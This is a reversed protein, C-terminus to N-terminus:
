PCVGECFDFACIWVPNESQMLHYAGAEKARSVQLQVLAENEIPYESLIECLLAITELSIAHIVVRMHPNKKYLASLIARMNGGSGGILAHTFVPLQEMGEPATAAVIEINDLAFRKKNEAILELAEEKHEIAFVQVNESLEALEVAVSGSGSGIDAVVAGEYLGLKCISVERIEEKTMPVRARLFETDKRGHTLRPTDPAPNKICCIYLGEERLDMCEMPSLMKIQQGEYSLQFGVIVTCADLGADTLERGLRHVDAVGSLLLFTKANRRIKRALCTLKKGHMSFIAADQYTEGILAAFYSVSSIGPLVRLECRLAGEQQQQKLAQMLNAAGSYFGSDGSFLIVVQCPEMFTEEQLRKLYPVIDEAMYIPEKKLKPHYAEILRPAGLLVDAGEIAAAAERTLCDCSGMGCGVLTVELKSNAHLSIGCLKEICRCVEPFRLGEKEEKAGIVFVPIGKKKAAMLKEEFGGARGSQKTVICEIRLQTLLASNLEESFPGQMAILQKGTLGQRMCEEIIEVTPLVRVYLREKLGETQSYVSLGKSGNTLLINGPIDQLARACEENNSFYTVNKEGSEEGCERHLRLYPVKLGQLAAKINDTVEYAYPHTADIVAMPEHEKFFLRMEERDMRGTQVRVLPDEKLLSAGYESAVCITHSIGARVLCESLRRGETTGAFLLLEKM